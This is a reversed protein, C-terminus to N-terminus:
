SEWGSLGYEVPRFQGSGVSISGTDGSGLFKRVICKLNLYHLITLCAFALTDTNVQYPFSGTKNVTKYRGFFM